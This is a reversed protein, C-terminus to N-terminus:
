CVHELAANGGKRKGLDRGVTREFLEMMVGFQRPLCSESLRLLHAYMLLHALRCFFSRVLSRTLAADWRGKSSNDRIFASERHTLTLVALGLPVSLLTKRM